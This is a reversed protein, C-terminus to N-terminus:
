WRLSMDIKSLNLVAGGETYGFNQFGLDDDRGWDTEVASAYFLVGGPRPVGAVIVRNVDRAVGKSVGTERRTGRIHTGQLWYGVTIEVEATGVADGRVKLVFQTLYTSPVSDTRGGGGHDNCGGAVARRGDDCAAVVPLGLATGIATALAEESDYRGYDM